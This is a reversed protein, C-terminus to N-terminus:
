ILCITLLYNEGSIIGRELRIQLNKTCYIATEKQTILYITGKYTCSKDSNLKTYLEELCLKKQSLFAALDKGVYRLHWPEYMTYTQSTKNKPYRIIFGFKYSNNELWKQQKTGIFSDSTEADKSLIDLALGTQHESYGPLAVRLRTKEYATKVNSYINKYVSLWNNFVIQQEKKSRYASNIIYGTVKDKKAASIMSYMATCTIQSLKSNSSKLAIKDGNVSILQPTFSQPLSNYRNVLRFYDVEKPQTKFTEDFSENIKTIYLKGNYKKISINNTKDTLLVETSNHNNTSTLLNESALENNRNNTFGSFVCIMVISILCIMFLILVKIKMNMGLSSYLM